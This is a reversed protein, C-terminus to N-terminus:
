SKPRMRFYSRNDYYHSDENDPSWAPYGLIPVPTLDTSIALEQGIFRVLMQDITLLQEELSQNFFGCDARLVVGKGTMGVYPSLGKEYLGHGFIFFKMRSCLTARQEWFLSKWEFDKLLRSLQEDASVVVVGSEDFLTAADRLPGRCTYKAQQEQRLAQYHLQNLMAKACPFTLWVLANFLDHWNQIRTQIEGALYIRPEYQKTFVDTSTDQSVFKVIHGSVTVLPKINKVLLNNLDNLDPWNGLKELDHGASILPEFLSSNQRLFGPIWPQGSVNNIKM